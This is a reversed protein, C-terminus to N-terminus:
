NKVLKINMDVPVLFNPFEGEVMSMSHTNVLFLEYRLGYEKFFEQYKQLNYISDEIVVFRDFDMPARENLYTTLAKIKGGNEASGSILESMKIKMIDLLNSISPLMEDCRSTILIQETDLNKDHSKWMDLSPTKVILQFYDPDLSLPNDWFKYRNANVWSPKMIDQDFLHKFAEPGPTRIITDDFDWIVLTKMSM